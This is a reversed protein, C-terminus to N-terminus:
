REQSGWPKRTCAGLVRGSPSERAVPVCEAQAGASPLALFNVDAPAPRVHHSISALPCIGRKRGGPTSSDQPTSQVRGLPLRLHPGLQRWHYSSMLTGQVGVM